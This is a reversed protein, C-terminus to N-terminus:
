GPLRAAFEARNRDRVKKPTGKVLDAVTVGRLSARWAEHARDMMTAMACPSRCEAPPLAATGQQRIEQCIFPPSTGEVAEVIDLVTIDDARRALRFGGNPGSSATLIGARVLAKLPKALYPEPLGYHEALVRRSVAMGPPAQALLAVSHLM